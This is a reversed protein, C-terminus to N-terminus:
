GACWGGQIWTVGILVLRPDGTGLQIAQPQLSAEIVRSQERQLAVLVGLAVAVAAALGAAIVIWRRGNQGLM